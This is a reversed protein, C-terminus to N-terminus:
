NNVKYSKFHKRKKKKRYGLDKSVWDKGDKWSTKRQKAIYVSNRCLMQSQGEPNQVDRSRFM